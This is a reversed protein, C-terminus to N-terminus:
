KAKNNLKSIASNVKFCSALLSFGFAQSFTLEPLGFVPGMFLAWGLKIFIISILVAITAIIVVLLLSEKM